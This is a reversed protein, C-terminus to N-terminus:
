WIPIMELNISLAAKRGRSDHGAEEEPGFCPLLREGDGAPSRGREAFEIGEEGAERKPFWAFEM